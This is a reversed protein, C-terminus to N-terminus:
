RVELRVREVLINSLDGRGVRAEIAESLPNLVEADETKGHWWAGGRRPILKALPDFIEPDIRNTCQRLEPWNQLSCAVKEGLPVVVRM